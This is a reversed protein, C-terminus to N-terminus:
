LAHRAPTADTWFFAALAVITVAQGGCMPVVASAASTVAWRGGNANGIGICSKSSKVARSRCKGACIFILDVGIWGWKGLIDDCYFM